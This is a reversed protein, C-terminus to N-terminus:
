KNEFLYSDSKTYFEEGAYGLFFFKKNESFNYACFLDMKEYGDGRKALEVNEFCETSLSTKKTFNNGFVEFVLETDELLDSLNSNGSKNLYKTM